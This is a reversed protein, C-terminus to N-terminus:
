GGTWKGLRSGEGEMFGQNRSRPGTRRGLDVSIFEGGICPEDSDKEKGLQVQACSGSPVKKYDPNRGEGLPRHEGPEGRGGM